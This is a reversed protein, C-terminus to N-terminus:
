NRILQQRFPELLPSIFYRWFLWVLFRLKDKLHDLLRIQIIIHRLNNGLTLNDIEDFIMLQCIQEGLLKCEQDDEISKEIESPLSNNLLQNTLLLGTLLMRKCGLQEARTLVRNWSITPSVDVLQAIDCIWKLRNWLHKSGHVCLILLLEEPHFSLVKRNLLSIQECGLWLEESEIPFGCYHKGIVGQHLDVVVKGDNRILTYDHRRNIRVTGLLWPLLQRQGSKPQYNVQSILLNKAKVFDQHRVLIDLDCFHRFALNGYALIALLSGKFPIAPINYDEFLNLLKVLEKTLLQNQIENLKFLLELQNLTEQPISEPEITKLNQYLLPLIEHFGAIHILYEWDIKQQLLTKIRIEMEPQVPIRACCLLLQMESKNRLAQEKGSLPTFTTM